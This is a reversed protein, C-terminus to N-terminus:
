KAGKTYMYIPVPREYASWYGDSEAREAWRAAFADTVHEYDTADAIAQVTETQNM